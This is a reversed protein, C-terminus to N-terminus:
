KQKASSLKVVEEAAPNLQNDDVDCMGVVKCQGSKMAERLVNMGWWGSGILVTRYKGKPQAGLIPVAVPAGLSNRLFSRRNM